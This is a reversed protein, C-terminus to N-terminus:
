SKTKTGVSSRWTEFDDTTCGYPARYDGFRAELQTCGWMNLPGPMINNLEIGISDFADPASTVYYLWYGMIGFAMVVLVGVAALLGRMARKGASPQTPAAAARVADASGRSEQQTDFSALALQREADSLEIRHLESDLLVPVDMHEAKVGVGVLRGTSDVAMLPTQGRLFRTHTLSGKRKGDVLPAYTASTLGRRKDVAAVDIPVVTMRGPTQAARNIRAARLTGLLMAIAGGLLLLNLVTFVALRNWLMDLGLSVTALEPKDASIVVDVSYDGSSFDIFALSVETDYSQGEYDYVLRADCDTLGRRTSCEGDLVEADYLTLPNQSIQIDRWLGPGQWWTFFGFLVLLTVVSFLLAAPAAVPKPAMAIARNPLPLDVFSM